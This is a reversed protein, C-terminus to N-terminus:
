YVDLDHASVMRGSYRSRVERLLDDDSAGGFYLQHYLVLLKPQRQSRLFSPRTM